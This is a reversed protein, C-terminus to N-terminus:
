KRCEILEKRLNIMDEKPKAEFLYERNNYKFAISHAHLATRGFSVPCSKNYLGDGIIPCGIGALHVRIQHTRGTVPRCKLFAYSENSDELSYATEAYHKGDGSQENHRTIISKGDRYIYSKIVGSKEDPVGSTLAYYEKTFGGSKMLGYLASATHLNKAIVIIGDTERDLRSVSRFVFEKDRYYNCVANALTDDYHGFTPHTPMGSPKDVALIDEDEYIIDPMEGCKKIKSSYGDETKLELVDGKKLVKRVTVHEGNVKIGDPDKKLLVVQRVSFSLTGFLFSKVDKGETKEDVIFRM